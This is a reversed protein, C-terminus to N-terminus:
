RAKPQQCWAETIPEYGRLQAMRGVAGLPAETTDECGLTEVRWRIDQDSFSWVEQSCSGQGEKKFRGARAHLQPPRGGSKNFFSRLQLSGSSTSEVRYTKQSSHCSFVPFPLESELGRPRISVLQLSRQACGETCTSLFRLRGDRTQVGGEVVVLEESRLSRLTSGVPGRLLDPWLAELSRSDELLLIDGDSWSELPFVVRGKLVKPDQESQQLVRLFDDVNQQDIGLKSWNPTPAEQAFLLPSTSLVGFCLLVGWLSSKSLPFRSMPGSNYRLVIL